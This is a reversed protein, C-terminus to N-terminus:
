DLDMEVHTLDTSVSSAGIIEGKSNFLPRCFVHYTHIADSLPFSINRSIKKKSNIVERKLNKLALTGNNVTIEDDTKGIVDKPNFDPHSNFIWTYSLDLDCHAIIIPSDDLAYHFPNAELEFISPHFRLLEAISNAISKSPNRQANEIRSYYARDINLLQSLTEQSYGRKKRLNILWYRDNEKEIM